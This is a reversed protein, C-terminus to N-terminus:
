KRILGGKAFASLKADLAAESLPTSNLILYFLRSEIRNSGANLSIRDAPFLTSIERAVELASKENLVGGTRTPLPDYVEAAKRWYWHDEMRFPMSTGLLISWRIETPTLQPFEFAIRAAVASVRPAAFSTVAEKSGPSQGSALLDVYREGFNSRSSLTGGEYMAGVVIQNPQNELSQPCHMKDPMSKAENGAAVVWIFKGGTAPDSKIKAVESDCKGRDLFLSGSVNVVKIGSQEVAPAWERIKTLCTRTDMYSTMAKEHSNLFIQAVSKAHSGFEHDFSGPAFYTQTELAGAFYDTTRAEQNPLWGWLSGPKTPNPQYHPGVLFSMVPADMPRLATDCILASPGDSVQPAAQLFTNSNKLDFTEEHVGNSLDLIPRWLRDFARVSSKFLAGNESVSVPTFLIHSVDGGYNLVITAIPYNGSVREVVLYELNRVGRVYTKYYFAAYEPDTVEELAIKVRCAELCGYDMASEITKPATGLEGKILRERYKSFVQGAVNQVAITQSDQISPPPPLDYIRQELKAILGGMALAFRSDEPEYFAFESDGTPSPLAPAIWPASFNALLIVPNTQRVIGNLLNYETSFKAKHRRSNKFSISLGPAIQHSAKHKQIPMHPSFDSNFYYSTDEPWELDAQMQTQQLSYFKTETSQYYGSKKTECRSAFTWDNIREVYWAEHDNLCECEFTKPDFRVRDRKENCLTRIDTLDGKIKDVNLESALTDSRNPLLENNCGIFLMLFPMLFSFRSFRQFM